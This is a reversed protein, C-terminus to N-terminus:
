ADSVDFFAAQQFIYICEVIKGMGTSIWAHKRFFPHCRVGPLRQEDRFVRSMHEWGFGKVVPAAALLLCQAMHPNEVIGHCVSFVCAAETPTHEVVGGM